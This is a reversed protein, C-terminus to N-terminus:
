GSQWASLARLLFLMFAVIGGVVATLAIAVALQVDPVVYGVVGALAGGGVLCGLGKALERIPKRAVQASNPSPLSGASRRALKLNYFYAFFVVLVVISAGDFSRTYVCYFLVALACLVGALQFLKSPV